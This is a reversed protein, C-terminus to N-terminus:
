KQVEKSPEFEKEKQSEKKEFLRFDTIIRKM